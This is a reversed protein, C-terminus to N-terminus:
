SFGEAKHTKILIHSGDAVTTAFLYLVGGEKLKLRKRLASVDAPFNRVTLNAQNVGELMKRLETKSFGSFGEVVFIRGPFDMILRDSTYLHSNPHLKKLEFRNSVTKFAGAKLISANPEYLYMEPRDAYECSANREEDITFVFDSQNRQLNVCHCIQSQRSKDIVLLLEKCEDHVSVVHIEAVHRLEGVAQHIDLLPSLKFLCVDSKEELLAQMKTLDPECDAISVTKRGQGDRRAPDAFCLSMKESHSLVEQGDGCIVQVHELGLLPFNHTALRCLVEQREVYVATDFLPALYSFDIGYGGTLDTMRACRRGSTAFLQEVLHKKYLATEESSCQELSLKPPFLINEHSAWAPLKRRAIQRGEIQTLALRLDVGANASGKMALKRVDDDRHKKIFDLTETNLMM